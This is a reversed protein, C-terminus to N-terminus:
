ITEAAIHASTVPKIKTGGLTAPGDLYSRTCCLSGRFMRSRRHLQNDMWGGMLKTILKKLRENILISREEIKEKENKGRREKNESSWVINQVYKNLEKGSTVPIDGRSRIVLIV